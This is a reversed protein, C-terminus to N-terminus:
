GSNSSDVPIWSGLFVNLATQTAAANQTEVANQTAIANQTATANALATATANGIANATATDAIDRANLLAVATGTANANANNAATIGGVIIAVIVVLAIIIAPIIWIPFPRPAPKPIERVNFLVDPSDTFNDDPNVEDAVTLKMTYSAPAADMPVAIKVQFNQVGDIPIDRVNAPDTGGSDPPLITLWRAGDPPTTSVRASAHVRRRTNNKVTFAAVGIRNNDLTVTNTAVTIDFPSPM